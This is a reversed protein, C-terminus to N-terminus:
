FGWETFNTKTLTDFALDLLADSIENPGYGNYINSVAYAYRLYMICGSEQALPRKDEEFLTKGPTKTIGSRRARAKETTYM